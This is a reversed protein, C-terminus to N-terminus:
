RTSISTNWVYTFAGGGYPTACSPSCSNRDGPPPTGGSPWGAYGAIAWDRSPGFNASPTSKGDSGTGKYYNIWYEMKSQTFRAMGSANGKGAYHDYCAKCMVGYIVYNPSGAYYCDAGVQVTSGCPPTAGVTACAPRYDRSIWANNHLQFIDWATAGTLLSDLADCHSERSGASWGAFDSKTLAVVDRVQTTVNPGCVPTAAVGGDMPEPPAGADATPAVSGADSSPVEPTGADRAPQLTAGAPSQTISPLAAGSSVAAAVSDAEREAPDGVDSLTLGQVATAPARSQQVVHALEHTLVRRRDHAGLAGSEAGFVVHNGVTYARAAIAASSAAAREDAHIRVKSFDFHFRSEMDARVSDKMPQGPSRVTDDVLHAAEQHLAGRQLGPEAKLQASCASCTGAGQEQCKACKRQVFRGTTPFFSPGTRDRKPAAFAKRATGM